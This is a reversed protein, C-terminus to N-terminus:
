RSKMRKVAKQTTSPVSTTCPMVTRGSICRARAAVVVARDVALHPQRPGLGRPGASAATSPAPLSPSITANRRRLYAPAPEPSGLSAPVARGLRGLGVAPPVEAPTCRRACASSRCASDSRRARPTIPSSANWRTSSSSSQASTCASVPRPVAPGSGRTPARGPRLKLAPRRSAPDPGLAEAGPPHGSIIRTSGGAGTWAESSDITCSARGLGRPRRRERRVTVHRKSPDAPQGDDGTKGGDRESQRHDLRVRERDPPQHGQRLEGQGGLRQDPDHEHERADGQQRRM